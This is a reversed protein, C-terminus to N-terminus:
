NIFGLNNLTLSVGNCFWGSDQCSKGTKNGKTNLAFKAGSSNGHPQFGVRGEKGYLTLGDVVFTEGTEWETSDQSTCVALM